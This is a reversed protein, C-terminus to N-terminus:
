LVIKPRRQKTAFLILLITTVLAARTWDRYIFHFILLLLVVAFLSVVLPRYVHIISIESINLVLQYLIPYIGFLFPHLLYRQTGTLNSRPKLSM